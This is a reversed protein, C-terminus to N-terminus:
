NMPGSPWISAASFTQGSTQFSHTKHDFGQAIMNPTVAINQPYSLSQASYSSFMAASVRNDSHTTSPSFAFPGAALSQHTPLSNSTLMNGPGVASLSYGPLMTHDWPGQRTLEPRFSQPYPYPNYVPSYASVPKKVPRRRRRRYNGEEFLVEHTPDLMWYHSKGNKGGKIPLKMFCEHLSLNHRISNKWGQNERERYYPFNDTIFDYIGNLTLRKDPASQIAMSILAVYSYPPKVSASKGVVDKNSFSSDLKIMRAPITPVPEPPTKRNNMSMSREVALRIERENVDGIGSQQCYMDSSTDSSIGPSEVCSDKPSVAVAVPM